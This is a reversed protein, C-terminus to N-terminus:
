RGRHLRVADALREISRTTGPVPWVVVHGIGRQEYAQLLSALEDVSGSFPPTRQGAQSQDPDGVMLGVTRLASAPDRGAASLADDFVKVDDDFSEEPRGYWAANWGDAWRAAIGHMRPGRTGVLLPIRRGPPPLVVGDEFAYYRGSFSFREGRLLRSVIELWEEFHGVKKEKSFGFAEYEPDHWGAGVALILRGPAVHDLTAAMKAVLGPNRFSACMVASGIEVRQTGMALATMVTWNEHTGNEGEVVPPRFILHDAFWVSDLGQLEACEALELIAPWSSEGGAPLM